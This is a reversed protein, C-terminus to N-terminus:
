LSFKRRQFMWHPLSTTPEITDENHCKSQSFSYSRKPLLRDLDKVAPITYLPTGAPQKTEVFLPTLVHFEVQESPFLTFDSLSHACTTFFM